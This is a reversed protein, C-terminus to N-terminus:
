RLFTRGQAGVFQPFMDPLPIDPGFGLELCQFPHIARSQLGSPRMQNKQLSRPGVRRMRTLNLKVCRSKGGGLPTRSYLRPANWAGLTGRRTPTVKPTRIGVGWRPVLTCGWFEQGVTSRIQVKEQVVVTSVTM